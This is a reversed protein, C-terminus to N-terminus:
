TAASTAESAAAAGPVGTISAISPAVGHDATAPTTWAASRPPAPESSSRNVDLLLWTVGGPGDDRSAM